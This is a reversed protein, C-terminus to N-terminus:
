KVTMGTIKQVQQKVSPKCLFRLGREFVTRAQMAISSCCLILFSLFFSLINFTKENLSKHTLGFSNLLYVSSDDDDDERRSWWLSGILLVFVSPSLVLIHVAFTPVKSLSEMTLYLLSHTHNLIRM